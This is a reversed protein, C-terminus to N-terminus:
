AIAKEERFKKTIARTRDYLDPYDNFYMVRKLCLLNDHKEDIVRLYDDKSLSTIDEFGHMNMILTKKKGEWLYVGDANVEIYDTENGFPTFEINLLEPENHTFNFHAQHKGDVIYDLPCRLEKQVKNIITQALELTDQMAILRENYM